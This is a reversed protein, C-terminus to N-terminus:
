EMKQNKNKMPGRGRPFGPPREFTRIMTKWQEKDLHKRMSLLHQITIKELEKQKQSVRDLTVYISDLMPPDNLLYRVLDARQRAIDKRRGRLEGHYRNRLQKLEQKQEKTLLPNERMLLRSNYQKRQQGLDRAEVPRHPRTWFYVLTGLVAVNVALSFVLIFLKWRNM